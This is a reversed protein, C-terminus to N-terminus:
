RGNQISSAGDALAKLVSSALSEAEALYDPEVSHEGFKVRDSVHFLEILPLRPSGFEKAVLAVALEETTMASWSVGFKAVLASRLREVLRVFTEASSQESEIEAASAEQATPRQPGHIRRFRWAALAFIPLGLCLWWASLRDPEPWPEPGLNPRPPLPLPPAESTEGQRIM